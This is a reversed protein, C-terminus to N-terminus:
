WLVTGQQVQYWNKLNRFRRRRRFHRVLDILGYETLLEAVRQIQLSRVKVLDMSLDELLIPEKFRKLAEELDPMHNLTSLPLYADVLPTRILGTVLECIVVNTEHYRTSYIGWRNPRERTTLGVGGQDRRTSTPRSTLRTVEYGLSNQCYATMYIKTKILIMM